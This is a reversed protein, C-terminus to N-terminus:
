LGIRVVGLGISDTAYEARYVLNGFLDRALAPQQHQPIKPRARALRFGRLFGARNCCASQLPMALIHREGQEIQDTLISLM